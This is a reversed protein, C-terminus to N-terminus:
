REVKQDVYWEHGASSEDINADTSLQVQDETSNTFVRSEAVKAQSPSETAQVQEAIGPLTEALASATLDMPKSSAQMSFVPAIAAMAAAPVSPRIPQYVAAKSLDLPVMDAPPTGAQERSNETRTAWNYKRVYEALVADANGVECEPYTYGFDKTKRANDSNYYTSTPKKQNRFPLLDRRQFVRLDVRDDSFWSNPHVSQWIAM